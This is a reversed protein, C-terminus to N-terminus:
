ANVEEEECVMELTFVTNKWEFDDTVLDYDAIREAEEENDADIVVFLDTRLTAWVQFKAM